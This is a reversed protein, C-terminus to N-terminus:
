SCSVAHAPEDPVVESAPAPRRLLWAAISHLRNSTVGRVPRLEPPPDVLLRLRTPLATPPLMIM